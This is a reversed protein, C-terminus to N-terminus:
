VSFIIDVISKCIKRNGDYVVSYTFAAGFHGATLVPEFRVEDKTINKGNISLDSRVGYLKNTGSSDQMGIALFYGRLLPFKGHPINITQWETNNSEPTVPYRHTILYDLYNVAVAFLYLPKEGEWSSYLRLYLKIVFGTYWNTQKFNIYLSHSLSLGYDNSYWSFESINNPSVLDISIYIRFYSFYM